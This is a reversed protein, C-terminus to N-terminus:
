SQSAHAWVCIPFCLKYSHFAHDWVCIHFCHLLPSIVRFFVIHFLGIMLHTVNCLCLSFTPCISCSTAPVRWLLVFALSLLWTFMHEQQLWWSCSPTQLPYALVAYAVATFCHLVSCSFVEGTSSLYTCVSGLFASSCLLCLFSILLFFRAASCFFGVSGMGRRCLAIETEKDCGSILDMWLRATRCDATQRHQTPSKHQVFLLLCLGNRALPCARLFILSLYVLVDLGLWRPWPSCISPLTTVVSTEWQIDSLVLPEPGM